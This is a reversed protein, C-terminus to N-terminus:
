KGNSIKYHAQMIWSYPPVSRYGNIKYIAKLRTLTRNNLISGSGTRDFRDPYLNTEGDGLIVASSQYGAERATAHCFDNYDGHPWCCHLVTKNLNKEIIKKSQVIEDRVRSRYQEESEESVILIGSQKYSCYIKDIKAFCAATDYHNWDHDKLHLVCEKSFEPNITIKRSILSSREEFFPTGFPLLCIFDKDTIYTSKREPFENSIPYLYNSKPHHFERIRDSSFYKTHTVTHSQIDVLGSREMERMEPWSLFGSADLKEVPLNGKWVEEITPRTVDNKEVFDPSIFITAKANYKKLYPFVYVYNDLYGDDFTLCIFKRGNTQNSNRLNFYEDLFLFEYKSRHLYNLLDIFFELPYTLYESKYWAPNKAPAVSHYIFVPIRIPDGM